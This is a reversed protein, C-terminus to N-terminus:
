DLKDEVAVSQTDDVELNDAVVVLLIDLLNSELEVM